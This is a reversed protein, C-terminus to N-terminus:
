MMGGLDVVPDDREIEFAGGGGAAAVQLDIEEANPFTEFYPFRIEAIQAPDDCSMTYTAHFETHGGHADGEAHEEGEAHM